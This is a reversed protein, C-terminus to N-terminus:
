AYSGMACAIQREREIALVVTVVRTVMTRYQAFRYQHTAGRRNLEKKIQKKRVPRKAVCVPSSTPNSSLQEM